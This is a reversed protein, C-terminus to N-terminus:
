KRKSQKAVAIQRNIQDRLMELEEIGRDKAIIHKYVLQYIWRVDGFVETWRDADNLTVSTGNLENCKQSWQSPSYDLEAAQYHQKVPRGEEDKLTRVGYAFFQQTSEFGEFGTADFNLVIQQQM